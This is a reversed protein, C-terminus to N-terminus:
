IDNTATYKESRGCSKCRFIIFDPKTERVEHGTVMMVTHCRPCAPNEGTDLPYLLFEQDDPV